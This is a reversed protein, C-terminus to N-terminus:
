IPSEAEKVSFRKKSWGNTHSYPPGAKYQVANIINCTNPERTIDRQFFFLEILFVSFIHFHFIVREVFGLNWIRDAGLM